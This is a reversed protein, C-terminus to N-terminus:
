DNNIKSLKIWALEQQRALSTSVGVHNGARGLYKTRNKIEATEKNKAVPMVEFNRRSDGPSNCHSNSGYHKIIFPPIM